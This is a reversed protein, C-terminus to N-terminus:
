EVAFAAQGGLIDARGAHHDVGEGLAARILVV